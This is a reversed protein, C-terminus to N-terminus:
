HGRLVEGDRNELAADLDCVFWGFAELCVQLTGEVLNGWLVILAAGLGFLILFEEESKGVEM